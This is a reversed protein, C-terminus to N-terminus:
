TDGLGLLVDADHLAARLKHNEQEAVLARCIAQQYDDRAVIIATVLEAYAQRSLIVLPCM